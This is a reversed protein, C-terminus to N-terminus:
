LGLAKKIDEGALVTRRIMDVNSSVFQNFPVQLNTVFLFSWRDNNHKEANM